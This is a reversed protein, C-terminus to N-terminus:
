IIVRSYEVLDFANSLIQYNCHSRSEQGCACWLFNPDHCKCFPNLPSGQSAEPLNQATSHPGLGTFCRVCGSHFLIYSISQLSEIEALNELVHNQCNM